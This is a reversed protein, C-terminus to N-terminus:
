SAGSPQAEPESQMGRDSFHASRTESDSSLEAAARISSSALQERSPASFLEVPSQCARIPVRLGMAGGIGALLAGRRSGGRRRAPGLGRLGYRRPGRRGAPRPSRDSSCRRCSESIFRPAGTDARKRPHPTHPHLSRAISPALRPQSRTRPSPPLFPPPQSLVVHCLAACCLVFCRPISLSLLRPPRPSSRM